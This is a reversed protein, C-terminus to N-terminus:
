LMALLIGFFEVMESVDTSTVSMPLLLDIKRVVSLM